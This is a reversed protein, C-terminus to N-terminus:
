RRNKKHYKKGGVEEQETKGNASELKRHEM